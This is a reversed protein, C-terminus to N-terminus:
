ELSKDLRKSRRLARKEDALQKAQLDIAKLKLAAVDIGAPTVVYVTDKQDNIKHSARMLGMEILEEILPVCDHGPSACFFNRHSTRIKGQLGLSHTLIGLHTDTLNELSM